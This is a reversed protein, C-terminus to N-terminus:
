HLRPFDKQSSYSSLVHACFYCLCYFCDCWGLTSAVSMHFLPCSGVSRRAVESELFKRTSLNTLM